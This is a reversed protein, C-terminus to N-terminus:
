EWGLAQGLKQGAAHWRGLATFLVGQSPNPIPRFLLHGGERGGYVCVASLCLVLEAELGPPFAWSAVSSVLGSHLMVNNGTRCAEWVAQSSELGGSAEPFESVSAWTYTHAEMGPQLSRLAAGPRTLVPM